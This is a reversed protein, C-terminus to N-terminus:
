HNGHIWREQIYHIGTVDLSADDRRGCYLLWGSCAMIRPVKRLWSIMACDCLSDFRLMKMTELALLALVDEGFNGLCLRGGDMQLTELGAGGLVGVHRCLSLVSHALTDDVNSLLPFSNFLLKVTSRSTGLSSDDQEHQRESEYEPPDKQPYVLLSVLLSEGNYIVLFVGQQYTSETAIHVCQTYVAGAEWIEDTPASVESLTTKDYNSSVVYRFGDRVLALDKTESHTKPAEKLDRKSEDRSPLDSSAPARGKVSKTDLSIARHSPSPSNVPISSFTSRLRGSSPSGRTTGHVHIKAKLTRRTLARRKIGQRLFALVLMVM